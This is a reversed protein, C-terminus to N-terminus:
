RKLVAKGLVLRTLGVIKVIGLFTDGFLFLALLINLWVAHVPLVHVIYLCVGLKLSAWVMAFISLGQDGVTKDDFTEGRRMASVIAVFLTGRWGIALALSFIAIWAEIHVITQLTHM